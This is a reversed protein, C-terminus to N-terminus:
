MSAMEAISLYIPVVAIIVVTYGWFIGGTGGDTLNFLLNVFLLEWTAILVSAFGVMSVFQFNRRLVQKRGLVAMDHRDAETGIYKVEVEVGGRGEPAEVGDPAGVSNPDKEYETDANKGFKKFAM